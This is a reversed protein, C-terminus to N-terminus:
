ALDGLIASAANQAGDIDNDFTSANISKRSTGYGTSAITVGSNVNHVFLKAGDNADDDGMVIVYNGNSMNNAIVPAYRGVASDTVSTTNFSDVVTVATGKIRSWAKISSTSINTTVAGGESKVVATTLLTVVGGDAIAIADDGDTFEILPTQLSTTGKVITGTVGAGSTILGGSGLTGAVTVNTTGTPIEIVDADADNKITVDNTSGQGTLILGEAATFGIAANDGAATDGAPEVTGTATVNGGVTITLPADITSLAM